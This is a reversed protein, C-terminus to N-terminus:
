GTRLLYPVTSWKASNYININFDGRAIIDLYVRTAGMLLSGPYGTEPLQETSLCATNHGVFNDKYIGHDM